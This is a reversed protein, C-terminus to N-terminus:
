VADLTVAEHIWDPKGQLVEVRNSQPAAMVFPRRYIGRRIKEIARLDVTGGIQLRPEDPVRLLEGADRNLLEHRVGESAAQCM